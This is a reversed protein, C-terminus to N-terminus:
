LRQIHVPIVPFRELERVIKSLSNTSLADFRLNVIENKFCDDEISFMPMNIFEEIARFTESYNSFTAQLSYDSLAGELGNIHKKLESDILKKAADGALENM